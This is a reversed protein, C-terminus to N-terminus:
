TVATQLNCQILVVGEKLLDVIRDASHPVLPQLRCELAEQECKRPSLGLGLVSLLAIPVSPLSDEPAIAQCSEEPALLSELRVFRLEGLDRM